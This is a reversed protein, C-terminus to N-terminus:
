TVCGDTLVLALPNNEMATIIRNFKSVTKKTVEGSHSIVLKSLESGSDSEEVILVTGSSTLVQCVKAM